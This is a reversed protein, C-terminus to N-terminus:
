CEQQMRQPDMTRKKIWMKSVSFITNSWTIVVQCPLVNACWSLGGWQTDVWHSTVILISSLFIRFSAGKLSGLPYSWFPDANSISLVIVIPELPGHNLEQYPLVNKRQQKQTQSEIFNFFRPLFSISRFIFNDCMQLSQIYLPDM